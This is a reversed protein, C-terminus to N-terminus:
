VCRARPINAPSYNAPEAVTWAPSASAGQFYQLTADYAGTSTDTCPYYETAYGAYNMWYLADQLGAEATQLAISKDKYYHARRIATSSSIVVALILAAFIIVMVLVMIMALGESSKKRRQRM